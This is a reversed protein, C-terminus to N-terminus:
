GVTAVLILIPFSFFIRSDKRVTAMDHGDDGHSEEFM